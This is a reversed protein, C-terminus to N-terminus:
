RPVPVPVPDRGPSPDADRPGAHRVGAALMELRATLLVWVGGPGDPTPDPRPGLADLPDRVGHTIRYAIVDVALDSWRRADRTPTSGLATTFWAPLLAARAVAEGVRERLARGLEETALRGDALGPAAATRAQEDAALQDAADAAAVRTREGEGPAMAEWAAAHTRFREALDRYPDTGPTRHALARSLRIAEGRHQARRDLWSRHADAVGGLRLRDLDDLFGRELRQADERRRALATLAGDARDLHEVQEGAAVRLRREVWELRRDQRDMRAGAIEGIQALLDRLGGVAGRDREGQEVLEALQRRVGDLDARLQSTEMATRHSASRADDELAGVRRALNSLDIEAM